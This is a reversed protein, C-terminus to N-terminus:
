HFINYLKDIIRHYFIKKQIKISKQYKSLDNALNESYGELVIRHLLNVSKLDKYFDTHNLLLKGYKSYFEKRINIDLNNLLILNKLLINIIYYQMTNTNEPIQYMLISSFIAETLIYRELPSVKITKTLSNPNLNCYHYGKYPIFLGNKMYQLYQFVFVADEGCSLKENFRLRYKDIIYKSFLCHWIYGISNHYRTM